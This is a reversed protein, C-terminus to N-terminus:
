FLGRFFSKVMSWMSRRYVIKSSENNNFDIDDGAHHQALNDIWYPATNQKGRASNDGHGYSHLTDYNDVMHIFEHLLTAVVSGLSRDLKATNIYISNPDSKKFIHLRKLGASIIRRLM